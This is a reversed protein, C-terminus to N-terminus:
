WLVALAVVSETRLESRSPPASLARRVVYVAWRVYLYAFALRKGRLTPLMHGEPDVFTRNDADLRPEAQSGYREQAQRVIEFILKMEEDEEDGEDEKM